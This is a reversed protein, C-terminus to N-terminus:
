TAHAKTMQAQTAHAKTMQAQKAYAQIMQAFTQSGFNEINQCTYYTSKIYISNDTFFFVFTLTVTIFRQKHFPILIYLYMFIFSKFTHPQQRESSSRILTVSLGRLMIDVHKEM